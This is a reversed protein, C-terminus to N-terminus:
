SRTITVVNLFLIELRQIGKEYVIKRIREWEFIPLVKRLNTFWSGKPIM